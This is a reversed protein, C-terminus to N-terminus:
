EYNFYEVSEIGECGRNGPDIVGQCQREVGRGEGMEKTRLM